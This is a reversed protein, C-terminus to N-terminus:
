RPLNQQSMILEVNDCSRMYVKELRERSTSSPDNSILNMVDRLYACYRAARKMTQVQTEKDLRGPIKDSLTKVMAQLQRHRNKEVERHRLKKNDSSSFNGKHIATRKIGEPRSHRTRQQLKPSAERSVDSSSSESLTEESPSSQSSDQDFKISPKADPWVAKKTVLEQHSAALAIYSTGGVTIPVTGNSSPPLPAGSFTLRAPQCSYCEGSWMCDHIHLEASSSVDEVFTTDYYYYPGM